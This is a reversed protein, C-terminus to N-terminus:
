FTVEDIEEGRLKDWQDKFFSGIEDGFAILIIILPIAIMAIILIKNVGEDGQENGHFGRLRKAVRGLGKRISM